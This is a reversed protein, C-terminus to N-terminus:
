RYQLLNEIDQKKFYVRNGVKLKPLIHYQNSWRHLTTKSIDFLERVQTTTMLKLPQETKDINFKFQNPDFNTM